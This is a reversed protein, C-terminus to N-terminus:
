LAIRAAVHLRRADKTHERIRPLIIDLRMQDAQRDTMPHRTESRVKREAEVLDNVAAQVAQPMVPWWLPMTLRAQSRADRDGAAARFLMLRYKDPLLWIAEAISGPGDEPRDPLAVQDATPADVVRSRIAARTPHNLSLRKRTQADAASPAERRHLSRQYSVEDVRLEKSRQRYDEQDCAIYIWRQFGEPFKCWKAFRKFHFRQRDIRAGYYADITALVDAVPVDDRAVDGGPADAGLLGAASAMMKTDIKAINGIRFSWWACILLADAATRVDLTLVRKPPKVYRDRLGGVGEVKIARSWIELSRVSVGLRRAHHRKATDPDSECLKQWRQVLEIRRTQRDDTSSPPQDAPDPRKSRYDIPISTRGCVAYPFEARGTVRDGDRSVFIKVRAFEMDPLPTSAPEVTTRNPNSAIM